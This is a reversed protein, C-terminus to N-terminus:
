PAGPVGVARLLERTFPTLAAAGLEAPSFWRTATTEQGDPRPVGDLVEADFAISVYSVEDGNLYRLRFQPGGVVARVGGLAVTVGAEEQAERVAAQQPSEDPEVSGGITQWLGGEAERVLLLRGDRDWVFVAVAPMLVLGHGIHERLRAIYPSIPM